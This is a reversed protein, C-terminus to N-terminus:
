KVATFSGPKNSLQEKLGQKDYFQQPRKSYGANAEYHLQNTNGRPSWVFAPNLIKLNKSGHFIELQFSGM